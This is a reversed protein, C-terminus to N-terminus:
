WLINFVLYSFSFTILNLLFNCHESFNEYVKDYIMAFVRYTNLFFFYYLSFVIGNSGSWRLHWLCKERFKEISGERKEDPPLGNWLISRQIFFSTSMRNSRHFPVTINFMRSSQGFQIESFSYRPCGTKYIRIAYQTIHKYRSIGYIYRACPNFAVKLRERIRATSKSFIVYWYLFQPVKLSTVLKHRTEMPTFSSM